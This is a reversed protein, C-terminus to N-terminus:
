EGILDIEHLKLDPISGLYRKRIILVEIKNRSCINKILGTIDKGYHSIYAEVNIGELYSLSEDNVNLWCKGSNGRFELTYYKM